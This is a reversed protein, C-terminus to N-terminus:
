LLKNKICIQYNLYLHKYGAGLDIVQYGDKILQYGLVKACPGCSLLILYDKPLKQCEKYLEDYQDFCDQPNCKIFKFDLSIKKIYNFIDLSHHIFAINKTKLATRIKFAM